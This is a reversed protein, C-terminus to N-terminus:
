LSIKALLTYRSGTPLLTSELLSFATAREHWEIRENLNQLPSNAIDPAKFRALTLHLKFNERAPNINLAKELNAKLEILKQPADGEAWILNPTFPNPGLTVKEFDMEFPGAAAELTKLEAVVREIDIEQWPPVLTVHLNKLPTWRVPVEGLRRSWETIKRRLEKSIKIAVFIRKAQM